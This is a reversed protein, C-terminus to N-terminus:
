REAIFEDQINISHPPYYHKFISFSTCLNDAFLAYLCNSSPINDSNITMAIPRNEYVGIKGKICLRSM